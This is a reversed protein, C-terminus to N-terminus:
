PQAARARDTVASRSSRKRTGARLELAIDPRPHDHERWLAALLRDVGSTLVTPPPLEFLTAPEPRPKRQPKQQMNSKQRPFAVPVPKALTSDHDLSSIIGRMVPASRGCHLSGRRAILSFFPTISTTSFVVAIGARFEDVAVVLAARPMGRVTTTGGCCSRCSPSTPLSADPRTGRSCSGRRDGDPSRGPKRRELAAARAAHRFACCSQAAHRFEGGDTAGREQHVNQSRSCRSPDDIM